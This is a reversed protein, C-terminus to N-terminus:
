YFGPCCFLIRSDDQVVTDDENRITNMEELTVVSGDPNKRQGGNKEFMEVAQNAENPVNLYEFRTGNPKVISKENTATRLIELQKTSFINIIFGGALTVTLQGNEEFYCINVNVDSLCCYQLDGNVYRISECKCEKMVRYCGFQSYQEEVFDPTDITDTRDIDEPIYIRLSSFDFNESNGSISRHEAIPSSWHVNKTSSAVSSTSTNTLRRPPLQQEQPQQRQ